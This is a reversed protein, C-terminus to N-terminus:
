AYRKIILAIRGKKTEGKVRDIKMRGRGRISIRDGEQVPSACDSVAVWNVRVKEAKIEDAMKSRSIGFGAATVADLRLSSVTAFVEKVQEEPLKLQELPVINAEVGLRNVKTLNGAIYELMDRDAIVQSGGEYVLIDGIKERKIGLSLIAGLFDRHTLDRFRCNGMISLLGLGDDQTGAEMYDPCVVARRREAEEYGGAWIFSIGSELALVQSLLKQRHPDYIDTVEVGAFKIASQIKDLVRAIVIRDEPKAHELIEKRNM